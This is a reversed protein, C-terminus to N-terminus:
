SLLVFICLVILPLAIWALPDATPGRPPRFGPGPIM